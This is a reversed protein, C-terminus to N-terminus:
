REYNGWRKLIKSSSNHKDDGGVKWRFHVRQDDKYRDYEPTNGDGRDGGNAFIVIDYISLCMDIADNASGDDDIFPIVLDVDKIGSVVEKREDFEMFYRGKKRVLWEDSNLGICIPSPPDIEKAARIYKIHGGHIPDFGGTVLIVRNM